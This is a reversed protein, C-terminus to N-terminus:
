RFCAEVLLRFARGRHSIANKEADTMEATTRTDGNPQFCQLTDQKQTRRRAGAYFWLKNRVLRGGLDGSYDTRFELQGPASIGQANLAADINNGQFVHNQFAYFGSGHFDNGGSKLIVNVQLGKTPADATNGVTSM